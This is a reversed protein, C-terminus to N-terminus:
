RRGECAALENRCIQRLGDRSFGGAFLVLRAPEEFELLELARALEQRARALDGARRALRGLHLRPMAFAPDLYAAIRDHERAEGLAGRQECGIALLYHAGANFEDIALLERCRQQARGLDGGNTLLTAQMLKVEPDNAAQPPLAALAALAEAQRDSELLRRVPALDWRTGAPAAGSDRPRAGALSAVRRSAQEIAQQWPAPESPDPAPPAPAPTPENVKWLDPAAVAPAPASRRPSGTARKRYYFTEHTHCLEFATSIGRLSEADGLFLYGGPQLARAFREITARIAEASFYIFVNRCFVVDLSAPAGWEAEETLSGAQFTVMARIGPDLVQENGERHFWRQRAVASTARLSWESYRGRRAKELVQQNVDIGLISPPSLHAGLAHHDRLLMAVTYPEEGSACGACLVQLGRSRDRLGLRDPLVVEVLARFQNPNRFFYTENVTLHGAIHRLEAQLAAPDALRHLYPEAGPASTAQVRLLLVEALGDVKDDPFELGLREAVLGRFRELSESDVFANV